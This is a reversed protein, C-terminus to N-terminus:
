AGKQEICHGLSHHYARAAAIYGQRRARVLSVIVKFEFGALAARIEGLTRYLSTIDCEKTVNDAM